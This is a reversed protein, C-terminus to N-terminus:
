KKNTNVTYTFYGVYAVIVTVFLAILGIMVAGMTTYVIHFIPFIFVILLILGYTYYSKLEERFDKYEQTPLYSQITNLQDTLVNVSMECKDNDNIECAAKYSAILYERDKYTIDFNMYEFFTEWKKRSALEVLAGKGEEITAEDNRDIWRKLILNYLETVEKPYPNTKTDLYIPYYTQIRNFAKTFALKTKEYNANTTIIPNFINYILATDVWSVVVALMSFVVYMLDIHIENNVDKYIFPLTIFICVTIIFTFVNAINKYIDIGNKLIKSVAYRVTEGETQHIKCSEARGFAVSVNEHLKLVVGIYIFHWIFAFVLGIYFIYKVIIPSMFM